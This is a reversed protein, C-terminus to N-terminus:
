LSNSVEELYFAGPDIELGVDQLFVRGKASLCCNDSGRAIGLELCHYTKISRLIDARSIAQLSGEQPGRFFMVLWLFCKSM